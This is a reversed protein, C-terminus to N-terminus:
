PPMTSQVASRVMGNLEGGRITRTKRRVKLRQPLRIRVSQGVGAERIRAEIFSRPIQKTVGIAPSRGLSIRSFRKRDVQNTGRIAAVDGLYVEPGSVDARATVRIMPTALASTAGFVILITLLFRM